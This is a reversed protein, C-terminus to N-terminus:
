EAATETVTEKSEENERSLGRSSTAGEEASKDRPPRWMTKYPKKKKDAAKKKEKPGNKKMWGDFLQELVRVSEANERDRRVEEDRRVRLRDLEEAERRERERVREFYLALRRSEEREREYLTSLQKYVEEEWEMESDYQAIVRAVEDKKIAVKRRMAEEKTWEDAIGAELGEARRRKQDETLESQKGDFLRENEESESKMRRNFNLTEEEASDLLNTLAAQYKALLAHQQALSTTHQARATTLQQTLQQLTLTDHGHQTNLSHLTHQQKDSEKASLHLRTTMLAVLHSFLSYFPQQTGQVAALQTNGSLQQSRGAQYHPQPVLRLLSRTSDIICSYQEDIMRRQESWGEDGESMERWGQLLLCYHHELQLQEKLAILLAPQSALSPDDLSAPSLTLVTHLDSLTTHLISLIYSSFLSPASTTAASSSSSTHIAPLSLSSLLNSLSQSPDNSQQTLASSATYSVSRSNSLAAPTSNISPFNVHRSSQQM